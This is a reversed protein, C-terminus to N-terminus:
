GELGRPLWEAFQLESARLFIAIQCCPGEPSKIAYYSEGANKFSNSDFTHDWRSGAM